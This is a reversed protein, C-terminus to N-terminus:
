SNAWKALYKNFATHIGPIFQNAPSRAPFLVPGLSSLSPATHQAFPCMYFSLMHLPGPSAGHRTRQLSLLSDPASSCFACPDSLQLLHPGPSLLVEHAMTLLRSPYIPGLTNVPQPTGASCCHPHLYHRPSMPHGWFGDVWHPHPGHASAAQHQICPFPAPGLAWAPCPLSCTVAWPGGGAPQRGGRAPGHRGWVRYPRTASLLAPQWGCRRHSRPARM